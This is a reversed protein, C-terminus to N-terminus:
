SKNEIVSYYEKLTQAQAPTVNPPLNEMAEVRRFWQFRFFYFFSVFFIISIFAVGAHKV